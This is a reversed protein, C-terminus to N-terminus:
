VSECSKSKELSPDIILLQRTTRDMMEALQDLSPIGM